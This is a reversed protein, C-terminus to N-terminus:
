SEALSDWAVGTTLIDGHVQLRGALSGILDASAREVPLLRAVPRGHKTILIGEADLQDVLALCQAKFKAIAIVKM